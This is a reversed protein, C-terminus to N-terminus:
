FLKSYPIYDAAIGMIELDLVNFLQSFKYLTIYPVVVDWLWLLMKYNRGSLFPVQQQCLLINIWLVCM